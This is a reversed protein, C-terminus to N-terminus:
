PGHKATLRRRRLFASGSVALGSLLVLTSPEPVTVVLDGTSQTFALTQGGSELSWVDDAFTWEGSYFGSSTVGAFTGTSSGNFLFLDFIMGGSFASGNGFVLSLTGGYNPGSVGSINVGDYEAGRTTGNIEFLSTSLAGLSLSPVTLVGPSNGPSLIGNVTVAGGLTGSGGLTAGSVVTLAGTAGSQDGDVLLTGASVSTPGSYTNAGGLTQVGSGIKTLSLSGSTNGLVGSFSASADGDGVTLTPTGSDGEVSGSGALGNITESFGGLNFSGAVSVNGKGAGNPVQDAAALALTTNAEVSTPGQYDNPTGANALRVTLGPTQGSDRLVLGGSSGTSTVRGSLVGISNPVQAGTAITISAQGAVLTGAFTTETANLLVATAFDTGQASNFIIDNLITSGLGGVYSGSGSMLQVKDASSLGLSITGTGFPSAAFIGGTVTNAVPVDIRLRTGNGSGTLLTLGGSFTSSAGQLELNSLNDGAVRLAVKRSAGDNIATGLVFSGSTVTITTTGPGPSTDWITGGSSNNQSAPNLGDDRWGFTRITIDNGNLDLLGAGGTVSLNTTSPIAYPNNLTMLGNDVNTSGTYSNSGSLTLGAGGGSVRTVYGVNGMNGTVNIGGGSGVTLMFGGTGSTNGAFTLTSSSDAAIEASGSIAINGTLTVLGAGSLRIAGRGSYAASNTPSGRGTITFSEPVTGSVSIRLQAGSAVVTENGAGTAGLADVNTITATGSQILGTGSFTNAAALVLTTSTGTKQFGQTGGIPAAIALTGSNVTGTLTPTGVATALTLTGPGNIVRFGSGSSITGITRNTDLTTTGTIRFFATNGSGDAVNNGSWNSAGSWSSTTGAAASWTGSQACAPEQWAVAALALAVALLPVGRRRRMLIAVAVSAGLLAITSPEPVVALVGTSQDFTLSQSGGTGVNELRWVGSNDTWTGAYFGTSSVGSFNGSLGTFNLLSLTTSPLDAINAFDLSLTATGGLTLGDSGATMVLRDYTTADSVGLLVNASQVTLTSATIEGYSDGAATGSAGPSLQITNNVTLGGAFTGTGIVYRGQGGGVTTPADLYGTMAFPGGANGVTLPGTFTSSGSIAFGTAATGVYTVSGTGGIPGSVIIAGADELQLPNAGLDISGSLTLSTDGAATIKASGSLTIPGTFDAITGAAQTRLSGFNTHGTGSITLPEPATTMSTDIRVIAAPLVVTGNGVGTAGLGDANRLYIQGTSVTTVGSYVNSAWMYLTGNGAKTFGQTGAVNALMDLRGANTIIPATGTTTTFAIQYASPFQTAFSNDTGSIYLRGSSTTLNGLAINNTLGAFTTTTNTFTATANTGGAVISSSWNATRGWTANVGVSNGNATWTGSQAYVRGPSAQLAFIALAAVSIATWRARLPGCRAGIGIMFKTNIDAM